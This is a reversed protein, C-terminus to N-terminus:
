SLGISQGQVRLCSLCWSHYNPDARACMEGPKIFELFGAARKAQFAFGDMNAFVIPHFLNSADIGEYPAYDHPIGAAHRLRVGFNGEDLFHPDWTKWIFFHKPKKIVFNPFGQKETLM